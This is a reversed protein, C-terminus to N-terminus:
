VPNLRKPNPLPHHYLSLTAIPSFYHLCRPQISLFDPKSSFIFQKHSLFPFFLLFRLSRPPPQPKLWRVDTTMEWSDSSFGSSASVITEGVIRPAFCSGLRQVQMAHRPTSCQLNCPTKSEICSRSEVASRVSLSESAACSHHVQKRKEKQGCSHM